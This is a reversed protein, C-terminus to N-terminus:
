RAGTFPKPPMSYQVDEATAVGELNPKSSVGFVSSDFPELRTTVFTCRAILDAYHSLNIDAPLPKARGAFRLPAVEKERSKIVESVKSLIRSCENAKLRDKKSLDSLKQCTSRDYFLLNYDSTQKDITCDDNLTFTGLNPSKVSVIKGNKYTINGDSKTWKFTVVGNGDKLASSNYSKLLSYEAPNIKGADVIFEPYLIREATDVCTSTKAFSEISFLTVVILILTNMASGDRLLKVARLKYCFDLKM